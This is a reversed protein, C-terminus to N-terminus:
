TPVVENFKRPDIHSVYVFKDRFISQHYTQQGNPVDPGIVLYCDGSTALVELSEKKIGTEAAITDLHNKSIRIAKTTM